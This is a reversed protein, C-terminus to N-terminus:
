NLKEDGCGKFCQFCSCGSFVSFCVKLTNMSKLGETNGSKHPVGSVGCGSTTTGTLLHTSTATLSACTALTTPRHGAGFFVALAAQPVRRTLMPIPHLPLILVTGTGAGSGCM